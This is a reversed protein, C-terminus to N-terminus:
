CGQIRGDHGAGFLDACQQIRDGPGPRLQGCEEPAQVVGREARLFGDSVDFKNLTAGQRILGAGVAIRVGLVPTVLEGHQALYRGRLDASPEV